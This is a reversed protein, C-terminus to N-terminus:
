WKDSFGNIANELPNFVSSHACVFGLCMALEQLREKM